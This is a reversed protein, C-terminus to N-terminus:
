RKLPTWRVGRGEKRAVGKSFRSSPTTTLGGGVAEVNM